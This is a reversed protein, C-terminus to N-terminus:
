CMGRKIAKPVINNLISKHTREPYRERYKSTLRQGVLGEKRLEAAYEVEEDPIPERSNRYLNGRPQVSSYEVILEHQQVNGHAGKKRYSKIVGSDRLSQIVRSVYGISVCFSLALDRTTCAGDKLATVYQYQGRTVEIM